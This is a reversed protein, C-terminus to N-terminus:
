SAIGGYSDAFIPELNLEPGPIWGVSRRVRFRYGNTITTRTVTFGPAQAGDRWAVFWPDALTGTQVNIQQLVIPNGDPDTITFVLEETPDIQTNPTPSEITIVPASNTSADPLEGYGFVDVGGPTVYAFELEGVDYADDSPWPM